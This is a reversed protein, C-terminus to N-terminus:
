SVLAWQSRNHDNGIAAPVPSESMADFCTGAVQHDRFGSRIHRRVLKWCHFKPREDNLEGNCM